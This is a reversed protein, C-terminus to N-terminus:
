LYLFKCSRGIKCLVSIRSRKWINFFVKRENKEKIELSISTVFPESDYCYHELDDCICLTNFDLSQNTPDILGKYVLADMITACVVERDLAGMDSPNVIYDLIHQSRYFVDNVLLEYSELKRM